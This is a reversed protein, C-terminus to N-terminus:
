MTKPRLPNLKLKQYHNKSETQIMSSMTGTITMIKTKIIIMMDLTNIQEGINTQYKDYQM